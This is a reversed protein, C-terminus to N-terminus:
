LRKSIKSWNGITRHRNTELMLGDVFATDHTRAM